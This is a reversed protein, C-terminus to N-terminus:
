YYPQWHGGMFGAFHSIWSIGAPSFTPILSVLIGGYILISFISIFISIIKREFVGLFFIYGILGYAMGSLGHSATPWFLSIPINLLIVFILVVFYHFNSRISILFSAPFFILTNSLLHNFNTHSFFSTIIRSAPLSKGIPLNWKGGPFIKDISEQLWAISLISITILMWCKIKNRNM